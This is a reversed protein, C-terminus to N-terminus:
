DSNYLWGPLLILETLFIILNHLIINEITFFLIKKQGDHSFYYVQLQSHFVVSKSSLHYIDYIQDVAGNIGLRVRLFFTRNLSLM